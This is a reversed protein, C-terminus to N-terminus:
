AATVASVRLTRTESKKYLSEPVKGKGGFHTEVAKSDLRNTVSTKFTAKWGDATGLEASGLAVKIRNEIEAVREKAADEAEKAAALAAFEDAALRVPEADPNSAGVTAKVAETDAKSGTPDPLVGTAEAVALKDFFEKAAPEMEAIEATPVHIVDDVWEPKNEADGEVTTVLYVSLGVMPVYIALYWRRSETVAIYLCCQVLYTTPFPLPHKGLLHDRGNRIAALEKMTKCELGADENAIKRDISAMLHPYDDNTIVCNERHVKKGSREEFRKAVYEENDRGFRMAENDAKDPLLGMRRLCLTRPTEYKSFGMVAGLESGGLRTKGLETRTALWAERSGVDFRHKKMTGM